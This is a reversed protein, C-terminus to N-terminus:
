RDLERLKEIDAVDQPRGAWAKMQILAERSVVRIPGAGTQVPSRTDWVPQLNENVLILDLTLLDLGDIRSVRRVEMGDRFRMPLARVDFGVSAVADLAADLADPTILLDIDTTARPTGHVALALAGVLAYDVGRGDLAGLVAHLAEDLRM